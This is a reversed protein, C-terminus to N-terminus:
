QSLSDNQRPAVQSADTPMPTHVGTKHHIRQTPCVIALHSAAWNTTPDDREAIMTIADTTPDQKRKDVSHDPPKRERSTNLRGPGLTTEACLRSWRHILLLHIVLQHALARPLAPITAAAMDVHTAAVPPAVAPSRSREPSNEAPTPVVAPSALLWTDSYATRGGRSAKSRRRAM